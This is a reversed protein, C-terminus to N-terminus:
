FETVQHALLNLKEIVRSPYFAANAVTVKSVGEQKARAIVIALADTLDHPIERNKLTINSKIETPLLPIYSRVCDATPKKYDRKTKGNVKETIAKIGLIGRWSSASLENYAVRHKACSKEVFANITPIVAASGLQKPNMFYAETTAEETILDSAAGGVLLDLGSDMYLFRQGRSWKTRTWLMGAAKIYLEDPNLDAVVYALHSASPDIALLTKRKKSM